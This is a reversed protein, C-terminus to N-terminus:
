RRLQLRYLGFIVLVVLAVSVVGCLLIGKLMALTLRNRKEGRRLPSM